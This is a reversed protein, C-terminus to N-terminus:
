LLAIVLLAGAAAGLGLGLRKEGPYRLVAEDLGTRLIARCAGLAALQKELEYRGLVLGLRCIEEREEPNLASLQEEAAERWLQAFEAEGLRDLRGSLSDLFAGAQGQAEAAALRVLEPLPSLRTELEGEMLGLAGWLGQLTEMRQRKALAYVAGAGLCAALILAAGLLKM